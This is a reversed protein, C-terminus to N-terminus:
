LPNQDSASLSQNADIETQPIQWRWRNDDAPVNVVGSWHNGDRILPLQNRKLDFYQVGMEGYLEKRRELLIEDILTSKDPATSRVAVPDRKLQLIYLADKAPELQGTQALGEAEILYTEASRNLVLDGSFSANDVFKETQWKKWPTTSSQNPAPIFLNRVDTSSFQAVFSSNVYIDQYRTNAPTPDIYGFFSAYSLSQSPNFQIGWMWEENQVNNFGDAYASGSMLPFGVRAAQANSIAKAWLSNDAVAREQYVEALILQAVNINIRYKDIRNATLNATAFELDSVILDYVDTLSSRPNGTSSASAPETYLPVGPATPDKAYTFQYIRALWFYSYARLAMAEAILQDKVAQGEPIGPTKQIILNANNIAKYFLNWIQLTRQATAIRGYTNDAWNNEFLWWNSPDSILDNGRMDFNFQITKLGYMNQRGTSPIYQQFLYYIGTMANDVGIKSGFIVADSLTGDAPTVEDIYKKSCSTLTIISISIAIIYKSAKM